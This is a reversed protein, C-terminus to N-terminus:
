SADATPAPSPQETPSPRSEDTPELSAAETPQAPAPQETPAAPETPAASEAPAPPQEPAASQEQAIDPSASQPTRDAPDAAGRATPESPDTSAGEDADGQGETDAGAAGDGTDGSDGAAAGTETSPSPSPSLEPDPSPDTETDAPPEPAPEPESPSSSESPVPTPVTGDDQGPATTAPNEPDSTGGTSPAPAVPVAPFEPGFADVDTSGSGTGGAPDEGAGQTGNAAGGDGISFGDDAGSGSGGGAVPDGSSQDDGFVSLGEDGFPTPSAGAPLDDASSADDPATPANSVDQAGDQALPTGAASEGPDAGPDVEPDAELDLQPDPDQAGEDDRIVESQGVPGGGAGAPFPLGGLTTSRNADDDQVLTTLGLGILSVTAAAAVAGVAFKLGMSGAVAGPAVSEDAETAGPVAGVSGAVSSGTRRPDAGASGPEPATGTRAGEFPQGVSGGVVVEASETRLGEAEVIALGVAESGATGEAAGAGSALIAALVKSETGWMPLAALVPLLWTRLGIGTQLLQLHEATCRPCGDLHKQMESRPRSALSGAAFAGLSSVCQACAETRPATEQVQLWAGSLQERAREALAPVAGTSIGLQRAAAAPTMAEVETHWLVAQSAEPLSSYAAVVAVSECQRVVLDELSTPEALEDFGGLLEPEQLGDTPELRHRGPGHGVALRGIAAVLWARLFCSPGGGRRIIGLVKAFAEAALEEADQVNRTHMRAVNLAIGRHRAQLEDWATDDGARLAELLEQDAIARVELTEDEPLIDDTVPIPGQPADRDTQEARGDDPPTM